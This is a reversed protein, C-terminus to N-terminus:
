LTRFCIKEVQRPYANVFIYYGMKSRASSSYKLDGVTSVRASIKVATFAISREAM